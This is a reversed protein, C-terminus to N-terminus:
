GALTIGIPCHRANGTVWHSPLAHALLMHLPLATVQALRSKCSEGISVWLAAVTLLPVWDPIDRPLNCRGGSDHRAERHHTGSATGHAELLHCCLGLNSPPVSDAVRLSNSPPPGLQWTGPLFTCHGRSDPLCTRQFSRGQRTRKWPQTREM